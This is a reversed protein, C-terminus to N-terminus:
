SPLEEPSSCEEAPTAGALFEKLLLPVIARDIFRRLEPTLAPDPDQERTQSGFKIVSAM